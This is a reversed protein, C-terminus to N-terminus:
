YSSMKVQDYAGFGLYHLFNSEWLQYIEKVSSQYISQPHLHCSSFQELSFDFDLEKVLEAYPSGYYCFDTIYLLYWRNSNRERQLAIEVPHYGGAETSYSSDRYNIIIQSDNDSATSETVVRALETFLKASTTLANQEFQIDM